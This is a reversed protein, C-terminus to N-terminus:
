AIAVHARAQTGDPVSRLQILDCIQNALWLGRGRLDRTPPKIRGVLPALPRRLKGRDRIECVLVGDERWLKATGRGGGHRVSNAALENVGTVLNEVQQREIDAADGYERIFARLAALTGGDFSFDAAGNPPDPLPADFPGAILDLGLYQESAGVRGDEVLVPDTRQVEAIPKREQRSM